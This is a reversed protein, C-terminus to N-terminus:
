VLDVFVLDEKYDKHWVRPSKFLQFSNINEIYLAIERGDQLFYSVTRHVYVSRNTSLDRRSHQTIGKKTAGLEIAARDAEVEGM